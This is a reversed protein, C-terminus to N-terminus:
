GHLDPSKQADFYNNRISEPECAGSAIKLITEWQDDSLLPKLLQEQRESKVLAKKLTNDWQKHYKLLDDPYVTKRRTGEDSPRFPEIINLFGYDNTLQEGPKIDSVAVEFGYATAMSNPRFSHNTYRAIDWCLVYNGKNNRYTYTEVVPRCIPALKEFEAPSLERDLMDKVWTITGAPILQTAFVGYGIEASIFKIETHPHIM